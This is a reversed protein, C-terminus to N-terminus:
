SEGRPREVRSNIQKKNRESSDKEAAARTWCLPHFVVNINLREELYALSILVVVSKLNPTCVHLFLHQHLTRCHTFVQSLNAFSLTFSRVQNSIKRWPGTGPPLHNAAHHAGRAHTHHCWAGGSWPLLKYGTQLVRPSCQDEAGCLCSFVAFSIKLFSSTTMYINQIM